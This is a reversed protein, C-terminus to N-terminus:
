MLIMYFPWLVILHYLCLLTMIDDTQLLLCDPTAWRLWASPAGGTAKPSTTCPHSWVSPTIATTVGMVFCYDIKMVEVGVYWACISSWRYPFFALCQWLPVCHVSERPYVVPGSVKERVKSKEGEVPQEIPEEKVQVQIEKVLLSTCTFLNSVYHQLSILIQFYVVM